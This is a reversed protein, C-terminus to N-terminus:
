RMLSLLNTVQEEVRAMASQMRTSDVFLDPDVGNLNASEQEKSDMRRIMALKNGLARLKQARM